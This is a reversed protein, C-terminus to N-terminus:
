ALTYALWLNGIDKVRTLTGLLEKELEHRVSFLELAYRYSM